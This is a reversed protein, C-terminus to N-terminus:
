ALALQDRVAGDTFEETHINAYFGTPNGKIENALSQSIPVCNTLDEDLEAAMFDVVVPGNEDDEGRHIHAGIIDSNPTTTTFEFDCCITGNPRINFTASGLGNPDNVDNTGTEVEKEGTMNAAQLRVDSPRKKKKKGKGKGKNKKNKKNKKKAEASLESLAVWLGGAAAVLKGGFIVSARRTLAAHGEPLLSTGAEDERSDSSTRRPEVAM